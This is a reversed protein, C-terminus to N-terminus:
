LTQNIQQIKTAIKLCLILIHIFGLSEFINQFFKLLDPVVAEAANQKESKIPLAFNIKVVLM